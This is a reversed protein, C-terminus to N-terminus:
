IYKYLIIIIIIVAGRSLFDRFETGRYLFTNKHTRENEWIKLTYIFVHFLLRTDRDFVPGRASKIIDIPKWVM